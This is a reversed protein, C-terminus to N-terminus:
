TIVISASPSCEWRKTDLNIFLTFFLFKTIPFLNFYLRHDSYTQPNKDKSKKEISTRVDLLHKNYSEDFFEININISLLRANKLFENEACKEMDKIIINYYSHDKHNNSM